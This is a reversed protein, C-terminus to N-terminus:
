NAKLCAEIVNKDGDVRDWGGEDKWSTVYWWFSEGLSVTKVQQWGRKPNEARACEFENERNREAPMLLIQSSEFSAPSPKIARSTCSQHRRSSQYDWWFRCQWNTGRALRHFINSCWILIFPQPNFKMQLQSPRTWRRKNKNESIETIKIRHRQWTIRKPICNTNLRHKM